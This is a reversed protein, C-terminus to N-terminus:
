HWSASLNVLQEQHCILQLYIKERRKQTQEKPSIFLDVIFLIEKAIVDNIYSWDSLVSSWPTWLAKWWQPGSMYRCCQCSVGTIFQSCTLKLKVAAASWHSQDGAQKEAPERDSSLGPGGGGGPRSESSSCSEQLFHLNFCSLVAVVLSGEVQQVALSVNWSLVLPSFLWQSIPDIGTCSRLCVHVLLVSMLPPEGSTLLVATRRTEEAFLLGVCPSTWLRQFGVPRVRFFVGRRTWGLEPSEFFDERVPQRDACSYYDRAPSSPAM